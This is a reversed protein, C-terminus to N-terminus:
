QCVSAPPPGGPTRESAASGLAFTSRPDESTEDHGTLGNGAARAEGPEAYFCRHISGSEGPAGIAHQATAETDPAYTSAGVMVGTKDVVPNSTSPTGYFLYDVDSVLQGGAYHFLVVPEGGDTLSASAGISANAQASRMNPVNPEDTGGNATPRMEFDPLKGYTSAFSTAGGSANALSVVKYQNPEISSGDPFRAVFDSGSATTFTGSAIKYYLHSDSIFYDSLPVASATPNVIEIMEAGGPRTVVETILLHDAAANCQNSCGDFSNRNGDDCEEIGPRTDGDGCFCVRGDDCRNLRCTASCRGIPDTNAPGEDCEEDPDVLGDGCRGVDPENEAADAPSARSSADFTASGPGGKEAEPEFPAYVDSLLRVGRSEGGTQAEAEGADDAADLAPRAPGCATMFLVFSVSARLAM